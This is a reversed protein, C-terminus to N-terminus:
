DRAILKQKSWVGPLIVLYTKGREEELTNQRFNNRYKSAQKSQPKTGTKKQILM